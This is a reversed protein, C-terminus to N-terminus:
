AMELAWKPDVYEQDANDLMPLLDLKDPVQIVNYNDAHCKICAAGKGMKLLTPCLRLSDFYTPKKTQRYWYSREQM